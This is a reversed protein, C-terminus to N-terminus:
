VTAFGKPALLMAPRIFNGAANNILIDLGGADRAAARVVQKVQGPDRVDLAHSTATFGEDKARQLLEEHHEVSRSACIVHGGMRGILTSVELGLGTGGGTVFAVKGEFLGPRLWTTSDSM